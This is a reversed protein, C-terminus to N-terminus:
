RAATGARHAEITLAGEDWTSGGDTSRDQIMRFGNATIDTYRTRTLTKAGGGDTYSGAVHMESGAWQATAESSRGRTVDNMHLRWRHEAAVWTRTSRSLSIPNGSGDIIRMEDEVGLGDASRRVEWTGGLKPTGHIMAVLSSVKPHVAITWRGLLFDFQRSEVPAATATTAVAANSPTPAVAVTPAPAVALMLAVSTAFAMPNSRPM